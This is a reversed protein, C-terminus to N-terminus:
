VQYNTGDDSLKSSPTLYPSRLLAIFSIFIRTEWVNMEAGLLNIM